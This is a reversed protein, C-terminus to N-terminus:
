VKIKGRGAPNRAPYIPMGGPSRYFRQTDKCKWIAWALMPRRFAGNFSGEIPPNTASSSRMLAAASWAGPKTHRNVDALPLAVSM